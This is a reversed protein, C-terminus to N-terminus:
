AIKLMRNRWIAYIVYLLFVFQRYTLINYFSLPFHLKSEDRRPEKLRMGMLMVGLAYVALEHKMAKERHTM